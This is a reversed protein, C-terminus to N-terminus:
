PEIEFIVQGRGASAGAGPVITLFLATSAGYVVGPSYEYQGVTAPDNSGAPMLEDPDGAPGVTLSPATGDFAIDINIRCSFISKGSAVTLLTKPTADGWAFDIAQIGGGAAGASGSPVSVIASLSRPPLAM